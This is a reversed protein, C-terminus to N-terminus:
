FAWIRSWCSASMGKEIKLEPFHINWPGQGSNTLSELELNRRNAERKKLQKNMLGTYFVVGPQFPLEVPPQLSHFLLGFCFLDWAKKNLMLSSLPKHHSLKQTASSANEPLHKSHRVQNGAEPFSLLNVVLWLSEEKEVAKRQKVTVSTVKQASCM